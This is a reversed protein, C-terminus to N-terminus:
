ISAVLDQSRDGSFQPHVIDANERTIFHTHFKRWIIKGASPDIEPIFLYTVPSSACFFSDFHFYSCGDFFAANIALDNTALTLQIDNVFLIGAELL